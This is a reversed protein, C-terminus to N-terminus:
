TVSPIGCWSSNGCSTASQTRSSSAGISLGGRRPTGRVRAEAAQAHADRAIATESLASRLAVHLAPRNESTNVTAGDFLARFAQPLAASDGLAVLADRADRDLRQRAFSAYLGGIRLAFDQPRTADAAVLDAIRATELRRAHPALTSEIRRAATTM